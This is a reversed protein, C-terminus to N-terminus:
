GVGLLQIIKIGGGGGGGGGVAYPVSADHFAFPSYPAGSSYTVSSSETMTEKNGSLDPVSSGPYGFWWDGLVPRGIVGNMALTKFEGDTIDAHLTIVRDIDGHWQQTTGVSSYTNGVSARSDGTSANVMSGTDTITETALTATSYRWTKFKVDAGSSSVAWVAYWENTVLSLTSNVEGGGGEKQYGLLQGQVTLSYGRFTSKGFTAIYDETSGSDASLLVIAFVGCNTTGDFTSTDASTVFYVGATGPFNRSM